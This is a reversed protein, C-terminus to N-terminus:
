VKVDFPRMLRFTLMRESGFAVEKKGTAYAAGTGGAGGVASGILAGKGGGALAGILAGGAAGGGIWALNRKEHSGGAAYVSSTQVTVPKGNLVISDLTLRLYGSNHLRGSNRATVVRGIVPTGEAAITKGDIVLPEELTADFEQGASATASSISSQLRVAIPTGSPVTITTPLGLKSLLGGSAPAAAGDSSSKQFPLTSSSAADPSAAQPHDLQGRGCGIAFALLTTAALLASITLNRKM